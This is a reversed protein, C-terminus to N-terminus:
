CVKRLPVLLQFLEETDSPGEVAGEPPTGPFSGSCVFTVMSILTQIDRSLSSGGHGPVLYDLSSPQIGSGAGRRSHHFIGSVRGRREEVSIQNAEVLRM